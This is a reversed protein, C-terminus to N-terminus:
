VRSPQGRLSREARHYRRRRFGANLPGMATAIKTLSGVQLKKEGNERELVYGTTQDAIVYAAANAARAKPFVLAVAAITLLIRLFPIRM